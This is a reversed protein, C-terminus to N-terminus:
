VNVPATSGRVKLICPLIIRENEGGTEPEVLGSDGTSGHACIDVQTEDQGPGFGSSHSEGLPMTPRHGHNRGHRQAQAQGHIGKIVIEVAKRGIEAKPIEVTTLPPQVLQAESTDDFGVISLEEPVSIGREHAAQLVQVAILDNFALVATPRTPSDLLRLATEYANRVFSPGSPIFYPLELLGYKHIEARYGAYRDSSLQRSLFAIERHGLEYLHRVAAQAGSLTDVGVLHFDSETMDDGVVVVVSGREVLSKCLRRAGDTRLPMRILGAVRTRLFHRVVEEDEVGENSAASLVVLFGHERATGEIAEALEGYYSNRFSEIHVGIVPSRGTKLGQAFWDPGDFRLERAAKLVAEKTRADVGYVGRLARSVTSSSVGAKAAVDAM